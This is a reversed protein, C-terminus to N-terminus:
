LSCARDFLGCRILGCYDKFDGPSLIPDCHWHLGVKKMRLAHVQVEYKWLPREIFIFLLRVFTSLSARPRPKAFDFLLRKM